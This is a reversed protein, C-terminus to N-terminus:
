RPTHKMSASKSNLYTKFIENKGHYLLKAMSLEDYSSNKRNLYNDIACFLKPSDEDCKEYNLNKILYSAGEADGASLYYEFCLYLLKLNLNKIGIEEIIEPISISNEGSSIDIEINWTRKSDESINSSKSVIDRALHFKKESIASLINRIEVIIDVM